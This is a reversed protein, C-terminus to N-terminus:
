SQSKQIKGSPSDRPTKNTLAKNSNVGKAKAPRAPTPKVTECIPGLREREGERQKNHGRKRRFVGWRRQGTPRDDSLALRPARPASAARPAALARGRTPLSARCLHQNCVCLVTQLSSPRPSHSREVSEPVVPSYLLFLRWLPSTVARNHVARVTQANLCGCSTSPDCLKRRQARASLRCLGRARGVRRLGGRGVRAVRLFCVRGLFSSLTRSVDSVRLVSM